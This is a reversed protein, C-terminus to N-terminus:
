RLSAIVSQVFRESPVFAFNGWRADFDKTVGSAVPAAADKEQELGARV